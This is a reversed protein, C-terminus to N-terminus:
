RTYHVGITLGLPNIATSIGVMQRDSAHLSYRYVICITAYNAANNMYDQRSRTSSMALKQQQKTSTFM